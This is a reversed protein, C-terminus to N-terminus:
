TGIVTTTRGLIANTLAAATLFRHFNEHNRVLGEAKIEENLYLQIYDDFDDFPATSLYISPLGGHNIRKQIDTVSKLETKLEPYALKQSEFCNRM